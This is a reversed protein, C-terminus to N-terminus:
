FSDDTSSDGKGWVSPAAFRSLARKKSLGDAPPAYVRFDISYYEAGTSHVLNVIGIGKVLGHANGSYQRKVLEIVQSHPKEQVSDDIILYGEPRNKILTEALRWVERATLRDRRLYDTIADHSMGELHNALNTCTYNVPTSILYEIYHKKTFM